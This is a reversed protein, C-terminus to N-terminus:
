PATLMTGRFIKNLSYVFKVSAFTYYRIDDYQEAYDEIYAKVIDRADSILIASVIDDLFARPFTYEEKDYLYEGEAKLMRMCLTLATMGVDDEKLLTLLIAKYQSLQDRLWGVVVADKESLTKKAILSGQALLRVFVRCLTVAALMSEPNGTRFQSATTILVTIDNYNKKSELIRQEMMLINESADESENVSSHRRKQPGDGAAARKRKSRESGVATPMRFLEVM